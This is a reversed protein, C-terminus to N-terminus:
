SRSSKSDSMPARPEQLTQQYAAAAAGAASAAAAAVISSPVVASAPQGASGGGTGTSKDAPATTAPNAVANTPTATTVTFRGDTAVKVLMHPATKANADTKDKKKEVLQVALMRQAANVLVNVGGARGHLTTAFTEFFVRSVASEFMIYVGTRWQDPTIKTIVEAVSHQALQSQAYCGLQLAAIHRQEATEKEFSIAKFEIHKQLSAQDAVEICGNAILTVAVDKLPLVPFAAGIIEVRCLPCRRALLHQRASAGAGSSTLTAFAVDDLQKLCNQCAIHGCSGLVKPLIAVETCIPCTLAEKLQKFVNTNVEKHKRLQVLEKTQEAVVQSQSQASFAEASKVRTTLDTNAQQLSPLDHSYARQLHSYFRDAQNCVANGIAWLKKILTDTTGNSNNGLLTKLVAQENADLGQELKWGPSWNALSQAASLSILEPRFASPKLALDTADVDTQTRASQQFPMPVAEASDLAEVDVSSALTELGRNATAFQNQTSVLHGMARYPAAAYCQNQMVATNYPDSCSYSSWPGAPPYLSDPKGYVAPQGGSGNGKPQHFYGTSAALDARVGQSPLCMQSFM